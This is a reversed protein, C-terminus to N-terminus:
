DPLRTAEEFARQLDDQWQKIWQQFKKPLDFIDEIDRRIKDFESEATALYLQGAPDPWADGIGRTIGLLSNLVDRLEDVLALLRKIQADVNGFDVRLRQVGAM